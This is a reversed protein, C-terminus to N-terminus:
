TKENLFKLQSTDSTLRFLSLQFYTCPFKTNQRALYDPWDFQPDPTGRCRQKKKKCYFTWQEINWKTLNKSLMSMEKM